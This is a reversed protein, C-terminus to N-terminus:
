RAQDRVALATNSSHIRLCISSHICSDDLSEALWKSATDAMLGSENEAGTRVPPQSSFNFLLQLRTEPGPFIQVWVDTAVCRRQAEAEQGPEQEVAKLSSNLSNAYAIHKLHYKVRQM